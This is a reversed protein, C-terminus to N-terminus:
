EAVHNTPPRSTGRFGGAEARTQHKETFRITIFACVLVHETTSLSHQLSKTSQLESFPSPARHCSRLRHTPCFMSLWNLYSVPPLQGHKCRHNKRFTQNRVYFAFLILWCKQHSRSRCSMKGDRSEDGRRHRM